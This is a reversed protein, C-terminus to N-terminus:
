LSSQNHVIQRTRVAERIDTVYIKAGSKERTMATTELVELVKEVDSDSVVFELKITPQFDVTWEMGRYFETHRNRMDLGRVDSVTLGKIGHETCAKRVDELNENPIIAEIKKM